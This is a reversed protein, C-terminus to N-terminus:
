LRCGRLVSAKYDQDASGSVTARASHKGLGILRGRHDAAEIWSEVIEAAKMQRIMRRIQGVAEIIDRPWEQPCLEEDSYVLGPVQDMISIALDIDMQQLADDIREKLESLIREGYERALLTEVHSSGYLAADMTGDDPISPM